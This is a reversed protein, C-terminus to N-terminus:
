WRWSTAGRERAALFDDLVADLLALVERKCRRPTLAAAGAGRGPVAATRDPQHAPRSGDGPRPEVAGARRGDGPESAPRCSEPARLRMALDLKGRSIRAAVSIACCRNTPACNRPLRLGLELFRHNVSRLECGLVGWETAREGAAFATMSRIM